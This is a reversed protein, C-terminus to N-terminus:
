VGDWDRGAGLGSPGERSIECLPDERPGSRREAWVFMREELDEVVDPHEEAVNEQEWPDAEMDYLQRDPVVSPWHGPHYTRIFKWRDTRVARQATYLGHDFVVHDRWDAAPDELVPRLSRGQWSPPTEDIGALDAITPAYDVNTVLQDRWGPEVDADSPPKILLPIRQTGDHTSWHERYLGQEGFEEGHDATLVITTEEYLGRDRLVDLLRGVHEDVYRIEADYHSILENLVDRNEIRDADVYRLGEDAVGSYAASRWAHWDLHDDIQEETPYPPADYERFREVEEDSRQYPGHPDWYQVHLYFEEDDHDDLFDTALDTVHEGRPTQFYEGDGAPEQPNYFEHWLHYFWTAPHRPFSSVAGTRIRNAFFLEPLTADWGADAPYLQQGREDHTVVGNNIANRGTLSAARSPMCPSAAAYARDFRVADAALEDINPSTPADYGYCGLHDPRLSDIDIYLVPM